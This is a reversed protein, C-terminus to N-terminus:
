QDGFAKQYFEVMQDYNLPGTKLTIIGEKNIFYTTPIYYIQYQEAVTGDADLLVPFSLEFTEVFENVNEQKHENSTLNVALVELNNDKYDQYFKELDPMEDRCPGCWTAWFNVLVNKGRLDSLKIKDGSLTELEFNPAAETLNPGTDVMEDPSIQNTNKDIAIQEVKETSRQKEGFNYAAGFVLLGLLLVGLITKIKM